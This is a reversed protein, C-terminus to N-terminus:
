KASGIRSNSPVTIRGDIAISLCLYGRVVFTTCERRRITVRSDSVLLRSTASRSVAFGRISNASKSCKAHHFSYPQGPDQSDNCDKTRSGRNHGCLLVRTNELEPSIVSMGALKIGQVTAKAIVCHFEEFLVSHRVDAVPSWDFIRLVL